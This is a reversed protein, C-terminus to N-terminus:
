FAGGPRFNHSRHVSPAMAQLPGKSGDVGKNVEKHLAPAHLRHHAIIRRNSAVLLRATVARNSAREKEKERASERERERECVLVCM